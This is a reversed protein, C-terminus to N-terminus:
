GILHLSLSNEIPKWHLDEIGKLFIKINEFASDQKHGDLRHIYKSLEAIGLEIDMFANGYGNKNEPLRDTVSFINNLHDGVVDLETNRLPPSLEPQNDLSCRGM